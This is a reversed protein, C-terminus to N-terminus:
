APPLREELIEIMRRQNELLGQQNELVGRQNELMGRQNELSGTLMAEQDDFRGLLRRGNVDLVSTFSATLGAFGILLGLDNWWGLIEGLIALAILGFGVVIGIKDILIWTENDVIWGHDRKPYLPKRM